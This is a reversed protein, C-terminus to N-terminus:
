ASLIRFAPMSRCFWPPASHFRLAIFVAVQGGIRPWASIGEVVQASVAADKARLASVRFGCNPFRLFMRIIRVIVLPANDCGVHVPFVGAQSTVMAALANFGGVGILATGLSYSM